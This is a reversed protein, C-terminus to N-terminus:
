DRMECLETLVYTALMWGVIGQYHSGDYTLVNLPKAIRYSDLVRVDHTSALQLTIEHFQDLVPDTRWECGASM